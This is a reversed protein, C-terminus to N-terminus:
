SLGGGSVLNQSLMYTYPLLHPTLLLTPYSQVLTKKKSIVEGTLIVTLPPLLSVRNYAPFFLVSLRTVRLKKSMSAGLSATTANQEGKAFFNPIFEEVKM